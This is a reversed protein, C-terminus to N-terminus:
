ATRSASSSRSGRAGRSSAACSVMSSDVAIAVAAGAPRSRVAKQAVPSDTKAM